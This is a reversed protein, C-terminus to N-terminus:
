TACDSSIVRLVESTAAQQELAETLTAELRASKAREQDLSKRLAEVQVALETEKPSGM